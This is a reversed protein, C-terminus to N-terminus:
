NEGRVNKVDRMIQARGWNGGNVGMEGWEGGNGGKGGNDMVRM